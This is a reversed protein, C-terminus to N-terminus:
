SSLPSIMSMRDLSYKSQFKRLPLKGIVCHYGYIVIMVPSLTTPPVCSLCWLSVPPVRFLCLCVPVFNKCKQTGSGGMKWSQVCPPYRTSVQNVIYLCWLFVLHFSSLCFVLFWNVGYLCRYILCVDFKGTM